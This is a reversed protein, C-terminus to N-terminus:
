SYRIARRTCKKVKPAVVDVGYGVRDLGDCHVDVERDVALAMEKLRGVSLALEDLAKDQDAYVSSSPPPPSSSSATLSPTTTSRAACSEGRPLPTRKRVFANKVWGFWSGISNLLKKSEHLDADVKDLNREMRDIAKGQRHLEELTSRGIEETEHSVRVARALTQRTEEVLAEREEGRRRSRVGGDGRGRGDRGDLGGFLESRADAEEKRRSLAMGALHIVIVFSTHEM